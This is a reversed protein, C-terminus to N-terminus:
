AGGGAQGTTRGIEEIRARRGGRVVEPGPTEPDTAPTGVPEGVVPGGVAPEGVAMSRAADSVPSAQVPSAQVPESPQTAAAVQSPTMAAQTTTRAPALPATGAGAGQLLRDVETSSGYNIIGYVDQLYALDAAFLGEVDRPSLRTLTGLRTIVRALVIVTLYPDDADAVKPDNLPELEDRATALRMTGQRHLTGDADLLGKPLTFPYETRLQQM